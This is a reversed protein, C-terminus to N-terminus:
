RRAYDSRDRSLVAKNQLSQVDRQVQQIRQRYAPSDFGVRENRLAIVPKQSSNQQPM